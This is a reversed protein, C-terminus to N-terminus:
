LLHNYVHSTEHKWAIEWVIELWGIAKTAFGANKRNSHACGFVMDVKAIWREHCQRVRIEKGLRWACLFIM